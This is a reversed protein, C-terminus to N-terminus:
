DPSKLSIRIEVQRARSAQVVIRVGAANAADDGAAVVAVAGAGAAETGIALRTL